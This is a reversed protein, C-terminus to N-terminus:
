ADGEQEVRLEGTTPEETLVYLGRERAMGAFRRRNDPDLAQWYPGGLPVVRGRYAHSAVDLAARVRQGDSLRREFDLPAGEEQLAHLRGDIVTLGPAGARALIEGLQRPITAALSRTEQATIAAADRSREAGLRSSEAERYAASREAIGLNRATEDVLEVKLRAVEQRDPGDLPQELVRQRELWAGEAEHMEASASAAMESRESARELEHRARELDRELAQVRELAAREELRRREAEQVAAATQPREGLTARIQEQRAELSERAECQAVAREHRRTAEDLTRRLDEPDDDVLRGPGGLAELIEACREEHSVAAAAARDRDAEAERALAHQHLRLAEAAEPLDEIPRRSAEQRLWEAAAADGQCLTEIAEEDVKADLIEALAKIRARAAADSDKLQPDILRTLPSIDALELEAEGTTRVVRGVRLAVGPGEVTGHDSGDRRELPIQGGTARSVARMASTKGAANRGRLVNVGPALHLEAREVGEVNTIAYDLMKETV